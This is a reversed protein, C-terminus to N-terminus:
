TIGKRKVVRGQKPGTRKRFDSANPCSIFHVERTEYTIPVPKGKKTERWYIQATCDPGNCDVVDEGEYPWLYPKRKEPM